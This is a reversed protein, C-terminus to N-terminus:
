FVVFSLFFVSAFGQSPRRGAGLLFFSWSRCKADSTYYSKKILVDLKLRLQEKFTKLMIPTGNINEMRVFWGSTCIRKISNYGSGQGALFFYLLLHFLNLKYMYLVLPSTGSIFMLRSFCMEM